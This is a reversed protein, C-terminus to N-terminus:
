RGLTPQVAGLSALRHLCFAVYDWPLGLQEAIEGVSAGRALLDAAARLLDRCPAKGSSPAGLRNLGEPSIRFRAEKPPLKERVRELEDTLTVLSLLARDLPWNLRYKHSPKVHPIFEFSGERARLLAQFVAKAALPPLPKGKQDLSRIYGPKLYLTTAPVGKVNWIELAGEKHGLAQLLEDLPLDKLNGLLAM